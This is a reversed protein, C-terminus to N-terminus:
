WSYKLTLSIDSYLSPLGASGEWLLPTICSKSKSCSSPMIPHLYWLRSPKISTYFLQYGVKLCFVVPHFFQPHFGLSKPLILCRFSNFPQWHSKWFSRFFKSFVGKFVEHAMALINKLIPCFKRKQLLLFSTELCKNVLSWLSTTM